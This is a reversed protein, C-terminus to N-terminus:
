CRRLAVTMLIVLIKCLDCRPPKWEYEISVIEISFGDDECPIGITLSDQLVDEANIEILCRAFSSRGWSEICMSSTYSDLIIPKGLKSAIISLGDEMFDEEIRCWGSPAFRISM